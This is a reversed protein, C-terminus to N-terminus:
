ARHIKFNGNGNEVTITKGVKHEETLGTVYNKFEFPSAGLLSFKVMRAEYALNGNDDELFFTQKITGTKPKLHYSNAM